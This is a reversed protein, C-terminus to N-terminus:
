QKGELKREVLNVLVLENNYVLGDTKRKSAM